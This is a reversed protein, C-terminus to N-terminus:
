EENWDNGAIEHMRALVPRMIDYLERHVDSIAVSPAINTEVETNRTDADLAWQIKLGYFTIWKKVYDIDLVAHGAAERDRTQKSELKPRDDYLAFVHNIIHSKETSFLVGQVLVIMDIATPFVFNQRNHDISAYLVDQDPLYEFYEPLSAGHPEHPIPPAVFIQGVVQRGESRAHSSTEATESNAIETMRAWLALLARLLEKRIVDVAIPPGVRAGLKTGPVLPWAEHFQAWDGEYVVEAVAYASIEVTHSRRSELASLEGCLDVYHHYITDDDSFAVGNVVFSM